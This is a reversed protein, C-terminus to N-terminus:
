VAVVLIRDRELPPVLLRRKLPPICFIEFATLTQEILEVLLM